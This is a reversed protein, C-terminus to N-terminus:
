VLRRVPETAPLPHRQHANMPRFAATNLDTADVWATPIEELQVPMDHLHQALSGLVDPWHSEAELSEICARDLNLHLEAGAALAPLLDTRWTSEARWDGLSWWRQPVAAKQTRFAAVCEAESILKDDGVIIGRFGVPPPHSPHGRLDAIAGFRLLGLIEM